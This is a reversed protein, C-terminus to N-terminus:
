EGKIDKIFAPDNFWWKDRGKNEQEAQFVIFMFVIAIIIIFNILDNM